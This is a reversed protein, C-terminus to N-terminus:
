AHVRAFLDRFFSLSLNYIYIYIPLSFPAFSPSLPIKRSHQRTTTTTRIFIRRRGHSVCPGASTKRSNHRASSSPSVHTRTRAFGIVISRTVRHKDRTRASQYPSVRLDRILARSLSSSSSLNLRRAHSTRPFFTTSSRLVCRKRRAVAGTFKEAYRTDRPTDFNWRPPDRTWSGRGKGCGGTHCYQQHTTKYCSRLTRREEAGSSSLLFCPAAALFRSSHRSTTM